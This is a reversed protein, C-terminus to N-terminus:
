SVIFKKHLLDFFPINMMFEEKKKDDLMEKCVDELKAVDIVPDEIEPHFALEQVNELGVKPDKDDDM